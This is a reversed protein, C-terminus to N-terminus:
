SAPRGATSLLERLDRPDLPKVLHRDFGADSTRQRDSEQGWGTLAVVIAHAGWPEARIRRCVEYGSLKPMGIDLLVVDPRFAEAVSLAEEGDRATRSEHGMADLLMSLTTAGDANDDAVLIRLPHGDPATFEPVPRAAPPPDCDAPSTLPLRVTFESGTGPGDSAADVRGGHMEVLRRVLTLGIGLGGDTRGPRQELQTFLEFIVPLMEPPIGIGSDRVRVVAEGQEVRLTLDIRGDRESYKAANNLLNTFVQELRIVDANVIVPADPLDLRVTHGRADLVPRSTELAYYLIAKLDARERRLDQKGRSIRSVDLLDDVLRVLQGLQRDMMAGAQDVAEAPVPQGSGALRIIQLGNRMPALPNRLEHALTALFEDKRRGAESLDAALQRLESELRRREADAAIRATIDTGTPALFIVEGEDNRIPQITLDVIRQGGDAVFYPIEERIVEGRVARDLAARIRGRLDESPVWWPGDWFPKAVVDDKAFGCGEWSLRNAELMTGDLDLVGAFLAGQEFLTRFKANAAATERVLGEARRQEAADRFVLVCGLITGDAARIPAASDEILRETGDKAILVTHNALGVIIGDCLAREAPTAVTAGTQENVIRFVTALGQGLADAELWGTLSEAVHNMNTVHGTLDTSIVGDGISSLTVQMLEKQAALVATARQQQRANRRMLSLVLTVLLGALLSTVVICITLAVTANDAARVLQQNRGREADQMTAVIMRSHDMLAKGSDSRVVALAGAHDGQEDLTITGALETLKAEIVQQLATASAHQAPNAATGADIGALDARVRGLAVYYPQLYKADGTLLYGRQGTEADKLTSLLSELGVILDHVDRVEAHYEALHRVSTFGYLGGIGLVALTALFGLLARTPIGGPITSITARPLPAQDNLHHEAFIPVTHHAPLCAM